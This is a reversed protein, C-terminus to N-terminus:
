MKCLDLHIFIMQVTDLVVLLILIFNSKKGNWAKIELLKSCNVNGFWWRARVDAFIREGCLIQDFMLLYLYAGVSMGKM